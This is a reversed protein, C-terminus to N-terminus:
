PAAGLADIAELLRENQARTGVTIRISTSLRDQAWYRVLIRRAKLGQFLHRARADSGCDALLFNAGSPPWRFGRRGLEAELFAREQLTGALTEKFHERDELAAIGLAQTLANVNYSDKVKMLEAVIAPRAFLLGLRAGALSYSKSFSRTVILNPHQQLQGIVSTGSFDAYAEDVVVIARAELLRAVESRTAVTASPNNPNSLFILKAGAQGLGEPLEWRPGYPLHIIRAGQIAALTDYLGYTPSPVAIAEGPDLFGRVLITLLDDSGNGALVMEPTVGFRAAAVERLRDARPSPYVRLNGAAYAALAREVGPGPPYPSENTNLKIAGQVQEGPTYGAMARVAPRLLDLPEFPKM